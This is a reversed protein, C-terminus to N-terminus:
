RHRAETLLEDLLARGENRDMAASRVVKWWEHYVAVDDPKHVENGDTENEVWVVPKQGDPLDFITFDHPEYRLPASDDVILLHIQPHRDTLAILEGLQDLAVSREYGRVLRDLFVRNIVYECTPPNEKEFVRKREMRARLYDAVDPTTEANHMAMIFPATQLIWPLRNGTWSRTHVADNELALFGLFWSPKGRLDRGRLYKTMQHALRQFQEAQEPALKLASVLRDVDEPKISQRGTEIKNIKAQQCGIREGLQAQTLGRALRAAKIMQGVQRPLTTTSGGTVANASEV